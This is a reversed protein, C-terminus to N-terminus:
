IIKLLEKTNVIKGYLIIYLIIFSYLEETDRWTEWVRYSTEYLSENDFYSSNYNVFDIEEESGCFYTYDITYGNDFLTVQVEDTFIAPNIPILEELLSNFLESFNDSISLYEHRAFPVKIKKDEYKSNFKFTQIRLDPHSHLLTDYEEEDIKEEKYLFIDTNHFKQFQEMLKKSKTFGYLGTYYDDQGINLHPLLNHVAFNYTGNKKAIYYCLYVKM